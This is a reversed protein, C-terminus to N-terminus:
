DEMSLDLGTLKEKECYKDDTYIFAKPKAVYYFQYRIPIENLIELTKMFEQQYEKKSYQNDIWKIFTSNSTEFCVDRIDTNNEIYQRVNRLSLSFANIIARYSNNVIDDDLIKKVIRKKIVGDEIILVAIIGKRVSFSCIIGGM